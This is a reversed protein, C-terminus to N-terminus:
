YAYKRFFNHLQYKLEANINDEGPAKNNKLMKIIQKIDEWDLETIEPQVTHHLTHDEDIIDNDQNINLLDKFHTRVKVINAEDTILHGYEDRLMTIQANFDNNISNCKKFFIRPNFRHEEISSVFKKETKRKERRIIKNFQNRLTIFEELNEPTLNQIIKRRAEGGKKYQMRAYTMSGHTRLNNIRKKSFKRSKTLRKKLKKGNIKSM